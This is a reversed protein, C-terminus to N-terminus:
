YEREERGRNKGRKKFFVGGAIFLIILAFLALLWGPISIKNDGAGYIIHDSLIFLVIEHEIRGIYYAAGGETQVNLTVPINKITQGAKVVFQFQYQGIATNPITVNFPLYNQGKGTLSL